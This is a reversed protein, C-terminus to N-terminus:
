RTMNGVKYSSRYLGKLETGISNSFSMRVRYTTDPVFSGEAFVFKIKEVDHQEITELLIRNSGATDTVSISDKDIVPGANNLHFSDSPRNFRVLIDVTGTYSYFDYSTVDLELNYSIPEALDGLRYAPDSYSEDYWPPGIEISSRPAGNLIAPLCVVAILWSLYM